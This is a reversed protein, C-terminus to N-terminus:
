CLVPQSVPGLPLKQSLKGSVLVVNDNSEDTVGRGGLGPDLLLETVPAIHGNDLTVKGVVIRELYTLSTKEAEPGGVSAM